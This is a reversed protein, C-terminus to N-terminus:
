ILDSEDNKEDGYYNMFIEELSQRPKVTVQRGNQMGSFDRAFAQAAAESELTVTYTCIHRERLASASDVAVMKGKRIIGIRDCTREVEEFIHSSMLITKGAGNTGVIATVSSQPISFTGHQWIVHGGRKVCADDFEICAPTEDHM